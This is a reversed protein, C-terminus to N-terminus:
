QAVVLDFALFIRGSGSKSLKNKIDTARESGYFEAYTKGKISKM